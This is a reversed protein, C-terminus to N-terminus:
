SRPSPMYCSTCMSVLVTYIADERCSYHADSFGIVTLAVGPYLFWRPSFLLLFRLYRRTERRAFTDHDSAGMRLFRQQCKM